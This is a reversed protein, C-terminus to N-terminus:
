RSTTLFITPRPSAFSFWPLLVLLEDTHNLIAPVARRVGIFNFVCRVVIFLKISLVTCNQGLICSVLVHIWLPYCYNADCSFVKRKGKVSSAEASCKLFPANQACFGEVLWGNLTKTVHFPVLMQMSLCKHSRHILKFDRTLTAGSVHRTLLASQYM